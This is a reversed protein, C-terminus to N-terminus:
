VIGTKFLDVEPLRKRTVSGHRIVAQEYGERAAALAQM